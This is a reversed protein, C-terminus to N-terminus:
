RCAAASMAERCRGGESGAPVEGSPGAAGCGGAMSLRGPLLGRQGLSKHVLEDMGTGPIGARDEAARGGEESDSPVLCEEEAAVQCDSLLWVDPSMATASRSFGHWGSSPEM